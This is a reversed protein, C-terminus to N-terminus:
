AGPRALRRARLALYTALDLGAIVEQHVDVSGPPVFGAPWVTTADHENDRLVAEGLHKAGGFDAGMLHSSSITTRTLTAEDLRTRELIASDIVADTLDAGTLIADRLDADDLVAGELRAGSLDAGALTSGSLDAATLDAGALRAHRLDAYYLKAGRMVVGELNAAVMARGPLYLDPLQRGALDIGSLDTTTSLVTLLSDHAARQDAASSLLTEVTVFAGGIIAGSVVAVGLERVAGGDHSAFTMVLGVGLLGVVVLASM